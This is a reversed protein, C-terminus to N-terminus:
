CFPLNLLCFKTGRESAKTGWFFRASAFLVRGVGAWVFFCVLSAMADLMEVRVGRGKGEREVPWKSEHARLFTLDIMTQENDGCVVSFKDLASKDVQQFLVATVVGMGCANDLIISNPPPTPLLNMEKLMAFAPPGTATEAASQARKTIRSYDM